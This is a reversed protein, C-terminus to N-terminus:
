FFRYSTIILERHPLDPFEPIVRGSQPFKELRRMVSEARKRFRTAVAPNDQRIHTLASLFQTQDSPHFRM